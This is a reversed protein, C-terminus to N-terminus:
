FFADDFLHRMLSSVVDVSISNGLAFYLQRRTLVESPLAFDDGLGHLSAIERPSFYRLAGPPPPSALRVRGSGGADVFDRERASLFADSALVSGGYVTKGYGATFCESRTSSPAVVDLWKWYKETVRSPVTLDDSAAREDLYAALPRPPPRAAAAAAGRADYGDSGAAAVFPARADDFGGVERKKALAYYRPRANPVGVDAPSAGVFERWAYGTTELARILADRTESTEFGVVNEVLVRDPRARLTPFIELLHAFATARPDDGHRRKGKRTYPQCPPSLTWLEAAGLGEADIRAATWHEVNGRSPPTADNPFNAAYVANAVESNDIAAVHEVGRSTGRDLAVRMMGTGSFWEVLRIPASKSPSPSATSTSTSTEEPEAAAVPDVVATWRALRRGRRRRRTPAAAVPPGGRLVAAARMECHRTLM